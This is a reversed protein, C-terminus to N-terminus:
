WVDGMVGSSDYVVTLNHRIQLYMVASVSRVGGGCVVWWYILTQSVGVTITIILIDYLSVTSIVILIDTPTHCAQHSCLM